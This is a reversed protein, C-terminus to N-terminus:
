IGYRAGLSDCRFEPQLYIKGALPQALAHKIARMAIKVAAM